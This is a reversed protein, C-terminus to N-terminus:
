QFAGRVKAVGGISYWVWIHSETVIMVLDVKSSHYKGLKNEM